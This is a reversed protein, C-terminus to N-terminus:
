VVVREVMDATFAAEEKLGFGHHKVVILKNTELNEETNYRLVREPTELVFSILSALSCSDCNGRNIGEHVPM